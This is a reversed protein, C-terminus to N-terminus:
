AKEIASIDKYNPIEKLLSYSKDEINRQAFYHTLGNSILIYDAELHFNYALIQDIAKQDIKVKPAKFEILLKVKSDLGFVLADYRRKLGNIDIEKEVAMWNKPYEKFKVLYELVNQRVWEEPTLVVYKKRYVDFISVKNNQKKIRFDFQPLNLNHLNM